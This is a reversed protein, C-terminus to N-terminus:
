HACLSWFFLCYVFFPKLYVSLRVCLELCVPLCVFLSWVFLPSVQRGAAALLRHRGSWLGGPGSHPALHTSLSVVQPCVPLSGSSSSFIKENSMRCEFITQVWGAADFDLRLPPINRPHPLPLPPNLAFGQVQVPEKCDLLRINIPERHTPSPPRSCVLGAEDMGRIPQALLRINGHSHVGVRDQDRGIMELSQQTPQRMNDM